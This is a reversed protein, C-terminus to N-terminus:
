SLFQNGLRTASCRGFGDVPNECKWPSHFIIWWVTYVHFPELGTASLTMELGDTSRVLTTAGEMASDLTIPMAYLPQVSFTRHLGQSWASQPALYTTMLAACLALSRPNKQIPRM